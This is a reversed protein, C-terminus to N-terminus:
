KPSTSLAWETYELETCRFEGYYSFFYAIQAKSMKPVKPKVQNPASMQLIKGEPEEDVIFYPAVFQTNVITCVNIMEKGNTLERIRAHFKVLDEGYFAIPITHTLETSM